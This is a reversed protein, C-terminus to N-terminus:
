KDMVIYIFLSTDLKSGSFGLEFLRNSLHSFWSRPAQKLGYLYKKLFCMAIPQQPHIFGVLQSMYVKEFLSVM